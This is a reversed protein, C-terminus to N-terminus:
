STQSPHERRVAVLTIDDTQRAEGTHEVVRDIAEELLTAAQRVPSALMSQLRGDGFFERKENRAETVGDTYGFLLEGPELYTQ